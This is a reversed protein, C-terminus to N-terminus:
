IEGEEVVMRIVRPAWRKLTCPFCWIYARYWEWTGPDLYYRSGAERCRTVFLKRFKM